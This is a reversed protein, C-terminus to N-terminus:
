FMAEIRGVHASDLYFHAVKELLAGRQSLPASEGLEDGFFRDGLCVGEERRVHGHTRVEGILQEKGEGDEPAGEGGHGKGSVAQRIDFDDVAEERWLTICPYKLDFLDAISHPDAGLWRNQGPSRLTLPLTLPLRSASV